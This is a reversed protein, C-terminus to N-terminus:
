EECQNRIEEKILTALKENSVSITHVPIQSVHNYWEYLQSM